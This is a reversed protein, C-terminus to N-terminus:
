VEHAASVLVQTERILMFLKKVLLVDGIGREESGTDSQSVPSCQWEFQQVDSLERLSLLHLFVGNLQFLTVPVVGGLDLILLHHALVSLPESFPMLM